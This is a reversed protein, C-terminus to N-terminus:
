LSVEVEMIAKKMIPFSIVTVTVTCAAMVYTYVTLYNKGNITWEFPVNPVFVLLWDSLLFLLLSIAYISCVFCKMDARKEQNTLVDHFWLFYIRFLCFFGFSCIATLLIILNEDPNFFLVAAFIDATSFLISVFFISWYDTFGLKHM